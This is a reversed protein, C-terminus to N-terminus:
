FVLFFFSFKFFSTAWAISRPTSWTCIASTDTPILKWNQIFNARNTLIKSSPQLLSQSWMKYVLSYSKKIVYARSRVEIGFDWNLYNAYTNNRTLLTFLGKQGLNKLVTNNIIPNVTDQKLYIEQISIMWFWQGRNKRTSFVGMCRALISKCHCLLSYCGRWINTFCSIKESVKNETKFNQTSQYIAIHKLIFNYLM